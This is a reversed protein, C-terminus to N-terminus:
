YLIGADKYLPANNKITEEGGVVSGLATWSSGLLGFTVKNLSSRYTVPEMYTVSLEYKDENWKFNESYVELVEKSTDSLFKLDQPCEDNVLYYRYFELQMERVEDALAHEEKNSSHSHTFTYSLVAGFLFAPFM